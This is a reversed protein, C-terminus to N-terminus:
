KRSHIELEPTHVEKQLWNWRTQCDAKRLLFVSLFPFFRQSVAHRFEFTSTQCWFLPLLYIMMGYQIFRFQCNSVTLLCNQATIKMYYWNRYWSVCMLLFVFNMLKRKTDRLIIIIKSVQRSTELLKM